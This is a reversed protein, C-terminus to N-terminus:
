DNTICDTATVPLRFEIEWGACLGKRYKCGTFTYAYALTLSLLPFGVALSARGCRPSTVSLGVGGGNEKPATARGLETFFFVYANVVKITNTPIHIFLIGSWIILLPIKNYIPM